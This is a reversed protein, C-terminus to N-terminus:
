GERLASSRLRARHVAEGEGGLAPREHSAVGARAEHPADCVSDHAPEARQRMGPWSCEM